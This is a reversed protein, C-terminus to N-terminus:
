AARGSMKAVREAKERAVLESNAPDSMVKNVAQHITLGKGADTKRLEEAKARIQAYANVGTGDGGAKGFEAFIVATDTQNALAKLMEAHKTQAAPDGAFAKMMVEGHAEPLGADVAMKSFKALETTGTLTAITKKADALQDTVAKLIPSESIAKAIANAQAKDIDSDDQMGAPTKKKPPFAKVIKDRGEGDAKIFDSKADDKEIQGYYERHEPTMKLLTVDLASADVKLIIPALAADLAKKLDEPTMDEEGKSLAPIAAVAATFEGRAQEPVLGTLHEVCQNISKEVAAKEDDAPLEKKHIVLLVQAMAADAKAVEDTPAGYKTAAAFVDIMQKTLLLQPEDSKAMSCKALHGGDKGCEKCVAGDMKMLVIKVGHGAGRTVSSVENIKLRSLLHPM